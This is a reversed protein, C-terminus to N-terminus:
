KWIGMEKYAKKRKIYSGRLIWCPDNFDFITAGDKGEAIRLIRGITQILRIMKEERGSIPTTLFISSLEPQDLGEGILQITAVVAGAKGNNLKDISEDRESKKMTGTIIVPSYHEPIKKFLTFCHATRESVILPIGKAERLQKTLTRIILDNRCRDEVLLNLAKRYKASKTNSGYTKGDDGYEIQPSFTTKIIKLNAKLIHGDKQLRKTKIKHVVDGVFFNIVQDLGDTRFPTASTGLIYKVNIHVLFKSFTNSPVRHCEDVIVYGFTKDFHNPDKDTLNRLSNIIGVTVKSGIKNKGGGGIRGIDGNEEKANTFKELRKVWQDQLEKTHIIVLTKEKRRCITEIAIVTKGSGTPAELVGTKKLMIKDVAKLGYPRDEFSINSEIEIPFPPANRRIRYDVNHEKFLKILQRLYGRPVTKSDESVFRLKKPVNKNSRKYKENELWKPNEIILGRRIEPILHHPINKIKIVNGVKLTVQKM